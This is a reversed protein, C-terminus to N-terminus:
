VSVYKKVFQCTEEQSTQSTDDLSFHAYTHIKIRATSEAIISSFDWYTLLIKLKFRRKPFDECKLVVFTQQLSCM